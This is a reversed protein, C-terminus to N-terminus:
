GHSYRKAREAIRKSFWTSEDDDDRPAGNVKAQGEVTEVPANANSLAATKPKNPVVSLKAIEVARKAPTMEVLAAAKDPDAGLDFLVKAPDDTELVLDLVEKNMAGVAQLNSVAQKFDDKYTDLGHTYVNNCADDFAKASRDNAERTARASAERQVADNFEQETRFGGPQNANVNAADNANPEVPKKNAREAALEEQAQKAIRRSEREKAALENMTKQMWDPVKQPKKGEVAPEVQQETTETTVPEEVVVPNQDPVLPAGQSEEVNFDPAAPTVATTTLDNDAM